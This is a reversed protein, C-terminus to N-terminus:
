IKNKHNLFKQSMLELIHNIMFAAPFLMLVDAPLLYRIDMDRYIFCLWFYTLFFYSFILSAFPLIFKLQFIYIYLLGFFGTLILLSRYIFLISAFNHVAKPKDIRNYSKILSTKFVAKKINSIPVAIFFEFPANKIISIRLEKWMQAVEDSCDEEPSLQPLKKLMAIGDACTRTLLVANNIKAIDATPLKKWVFDPLTFTENNLLQSIQPEWDTQVSWMFYAFNLRDMSMFRSSSKNFMFVLKGHNIYNRAPWLGFIILGSFIFLLSLVLTKKTFAFQIFYFLPVSAFLFISQPRVLICFGTIAGALIIKIKNHTANTVILYLAVIMLDISISEAYIIPTWFIMFPYLSFLLGAWVSIKNKKFLFLFFKYFLVASISNLLMQFFAAIKLSFLLNSTGFLFLFIGIFLSYGPMRGAYADVENLNVTYTGHHILNLIGSIYSGSDGQLIFDNKGFYIEAGFFYFILRISLALIFIFFAPNQKITKM